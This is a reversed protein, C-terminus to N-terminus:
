YNVSYNIFKTRLLSSFALREDNTSFAHTPILFFSKNDKYLLFFDRTEVVRRFSQWSLTREGVQTRISLGEENLDLDIFDKFTAAKNYISQPLLYWFAAVLLGTMCVVGLFTPFPIVNFFFGIFSFIILISLTIQFVRVEGKHLLHFRLANIVGEKKYQFRLQM